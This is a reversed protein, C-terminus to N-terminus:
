VGGEVLRDYVSICLSCSCPLQEPLCHSGHGQRGRTRLGAVCLPCATVSVDWHSALAFVDAGVALAGGLQVEQLQPMTCVALQLLEPKLPGSLCGQGKGWVVESCWLTLSSLQVLGHGTDDVAAAASSYGECRLGEGGDRTVVLRQALTWLLQTTVRDVGLELQTLSTLQRLARALRQIGAVNDIADADASAEVWRCQLTLRRLGNGQMPSLGAEFIHATHHYGNDPRVTVALTLATLGTHYLAAGLRNSHLTRLRGGTITLERLATLMTGCAIAHNVAAGAPLYLIRPDGAAARSPDGVRALMLRQLAPLACIAEVLDGITQSNVYPGVLSLSTLRSAATLAPLLARTGNACCFNRTSHRRSVLELARMHPMCALARGLARANCRHVLTLRTLQVLATAHHELVHGLTGWNAPEPRRNHTSLELECLQPVAAIAAVMQRLTRAGGRTNSVNGHMSAFRLVSLMPLTAVACALAAADRMTAGVVDLQRLATLVGMCGALAGSVHLMVGDGSLYLRSLRSLTCIRRALAAAANPDGCARGEGALASEAADIHLRLSVLESSRVIGAAVAHIPARVGCPAGDGSDLGRFTLDLSRLHAPTFAARVAAEVESLRAGTFGLNVETVGDLRPLTDAVAAAESALHVTANFTGDICAQVAPTRLHAPFAALLPQVGAGPVLAAHM